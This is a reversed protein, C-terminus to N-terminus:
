EHRFERPAQLSLARGERQRQCPYLLPEGFFAHRYLVQDLHFRLALGRALDGDAVADAAQAEQPRHVPALEDFRHAHDFLFQAFVRDPNVRRHIERRAVAVPVGDFFECLHAAQRFAVDRAFRDLQRVLARRARQDRADSDAGSARRMNTVVERVFPQGLELLRCLNAPGGHSGQALRAQPKRQDQVQSGDHEQRCYERSPQEALRVCASQAAPQEGRGADDGRQAGALQRYRQHVPKRSQKRCRTGQRPQIKGFANRRVAARQRYDGRQERMRLADFIQDLREFHAEEGIAVGFQVESQQRIKLIGRFLRLRRVCWQECENGRADIFEILLVAMRLIGVVAIRKEQKM